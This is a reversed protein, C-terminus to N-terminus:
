LEQEKSLSESDIAAVVIPITTAAEEEEEEMVRGNRM